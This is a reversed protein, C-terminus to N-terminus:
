GRRVRAVAQEKLAILLLPLILGTGCFGYTPYASPLSRISLDVVSYSEALYLGVVVLPILLTGSAAGIARLRLAVWVSGYSILWAWGMYVLADIALVFLAIVAQFIMIEVRGNGLCGLTNTDCLYVQRISRVSQYMIAAYTPLILGALAAWALRMRYLAAAIFGEVIESNTLRSIQILGFEGQQIARIVPFVILVALAPLSLIRATANVLLILNPVPVGGPANRTLPDAMVAGIILALGGLTTAAAVILWARVDPWTARRTLREFLPNVAMNHIMSALMDHEGRGGDGRLREPM